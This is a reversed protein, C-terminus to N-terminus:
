FPLDDHADSAQLRLFSDILQDVDGSFEMVEHRIRPYEDRSVSGLLGPEALSDSVLSTAARDGQEPPPAVRALEKRRRVGEAERRTVLTHRQAQQLRHSRAQRAACGGHA